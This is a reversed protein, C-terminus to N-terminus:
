GVAGRRAWAEFFGVVPRGDVVREEGKVECRRGLMRGIELRREVQERPMAGAQWGGRGQREHRVRQGDGLQGGVEAPAHAAGVAGDVPGADDRPEALGGEEGALRQQEEAVADGAALAPAVAADDDALVAHATNAVLADAPAHHGHQGVTGHHM